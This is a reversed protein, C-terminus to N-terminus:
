DFVDLLDLCVFRHPSDANYLVRVPKESLEFRRAREAQERYGIMKGYQEHGDVDYTLDIRYDQKGNTEVNTRKSQLIEGVTLVGDRLIERKIKRKIIPFGILFLGISAIVATVGFDEPKEHNTAIILTAFILFPFGFGFWTRLRGLVQNEVGRPIHRPPSQAVFENMEATTVRLRDIAKRMARGLGFGMRDGMAIMEDPRAERSVEPQLDLEHEGARFLSCLKLSEKRFLDLDKGELKHAGRLRYIVLVRGQGRVSWGPRDGLRERLEPTFLVRIAEEAM